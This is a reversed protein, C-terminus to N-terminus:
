NKHPKEYRVADLNWQSSVVEYDQIQRLYEEQFNKLYCNGSGRLEELSLTPICSAITDTSSTNISISPLGLRWGYFVRMPSIWSWNQDQPINIQYRALNASQRRIKETQLSNPVFVTFAQDRLKQIVLRRHRTMRGSFYFDFKKQSPIIAKPLLRPWCSTYISYNPILTKFGLLNPLDGLSILFDFSNISSLLNTLREVSQYGNVYDNGEWARRSFFSFTGNVYDYHETAILGLQLSPDTRKLSSIKRMTEFSLDEFILNLKKPDPSRSFSFHHGADKCLLKLFILQDTVWIPHQHCWVHIPMDFWISEPKATM